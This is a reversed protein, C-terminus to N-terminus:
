ARRRPWPCSTPRRSCVESPTSGAYSRRSPTAAATPLASSRSTTSSCNAELQVRAVTEDRMRGDFVEYRASGRAKARYMAADADRVLSEPDSNADGLAIGISASLFFEGGGVTFPGAGEVVGFESVVQLEVRERSKAEGAPFALVLM